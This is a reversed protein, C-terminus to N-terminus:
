TVEESGDTDTANVSLQAALSVAVPADTEGLVLSTASVSIDGEVNITVTGSSNASGENTTAVVTYGIPAGSNTASGAVGTTSYDAPFVLGFAGPLAGGTVTVTLVNGVLTGGVATTGAPLNDFTYVLSTWSESGDSDSITVTNTLLVQLGADTETSVVNLAQANFDIDHGATVTVTFDQNAAGGEDTTGAVNGNVVGSWDAPLTFGPVGAVSTGSWSYSGVAGAVWGAGMVAGEPVNSLTVTVGTVEESGDTDTANVSLQAALSVAVPADTEGLVLSTASVSIDGEVNITVTGSSNASGENTTAVVTYGIPAGSNTASGAVGTTSYDAPFVLGFAGPLAGGTVTVTLVNGVLTGGVATTGAPLNDFTYVLSTWSESGDSDSLTVTNTLAVQLGADTETSVVNLAQANFDIDGLPTVNITLVSTVTDEGDTVLYSVPPVAGSFDPSPTFSFSGDSNIILTGIGEQATTTGAAIGLVDGWSYSVVSAGQPGDPNVSNSLVNGLVSTDEAISFAEDGDSLDNIPDITLTLTSTVTDVGDTVVYTVPPVAGDYNPAPTFTFSGDSNVILSGIGDITVSTGATVNINDGWSFIPVSAAEPGDTNVTNTLVNGNLVGGESVTLQEGEDSLENTLLPEALQETDVVPETQYTTDFGAAAITADGTRDITVFGGNGSAGAVGGIGGGGGAAPAGGAASAEFNQTPDIGQLISQQLAAIEPSTATGDDPVQQLGPVPVDPASSDPTTATPSDDYPALLLKADDAINLRAGPQLIEGKQLPRSSGDALLIQVNGEISSVVVTKDIVQTRM